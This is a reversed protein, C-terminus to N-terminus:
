ATRSPWASRSASSPLADPNKADVAAIFPVEDSKADTSLPLTTFSAGRDDSRLLVGVGNLGLGSVYIRAPDSPAVDVTAVLRMSDPLAPGLPHFHRGDDLSEQLQSTIAGNASTLLAAIVAGDGDITFDAVAQTPDGGLKKEFDCAGDSSRALSSYISTILGGDAALAAVPDTQEGPEAFAAECVHFWLARRAVVWRARGSDGPAATM